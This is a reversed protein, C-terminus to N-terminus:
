GPRVELCPPTTIARGPVVPRVASCRRITSHSSPGATTMAPAPVPLVLTMTSRTPVQELGVLVEQRLLDEDQGVVDLRGRLQPCPDFCGDAHGGGRAHRDAVEVAEALPDEGLVRGIGPQRRAGVDEVADGLHQEELVQPRVEMEDVVPRLPPEAREDLEDISALVLENVRGVEIGEDGLLAPHEFLPEPAELRGGVPQGDVAVQSREALDALRVGPCAGVFAGLRAALGALVVGVVHRLGGVALRAPRDRAVALRAGPGREWGVVLRADIGEGVGVDRVAGGELDQPQGLQGGDVVGVLVFQGASAGEVEPLLDGGDRLQELGPGVDQAPPLALEAVQEDVLELVRVDGLDLEDLQEPPRRVPRVVDHDDAVVVLRDVSEATGAERREGFEVRAERPRGRVVWARWWGWRRRSEAELLVEARDPVDQGRRVPQDRDVCVRNSGSLCRTVSRSSPRGTWTTTQAPGSSSATAITSAMWAARSSPVALPQCSM